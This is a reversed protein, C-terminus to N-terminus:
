NAPRRALGFAFCAGLTSSGSTVGDGATSSATADDGDADSWVLTAECLGAGGIVGESGAIVVPSTVLPAIALAAIITSPRSRRTM